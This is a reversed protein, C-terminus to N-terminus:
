SQSANERKSRSTTRERSRIRERSRTREKSRTRERSRTRGKSRTKRRSRRIRRGLGGTKNKNGSGKQEQKHEKKRGQEEGHEKRTISTNISSSRSRCMSVNRSRSRSMSRRRSVSRGGFITNPKSSLPRFDERVLSILLYSRPDPVAPNIHSPTSNFCQLLARSLSIACRENSSDSCVVWDM